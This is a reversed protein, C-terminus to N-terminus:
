MRRERNRSWEVCAPFTCDPSHYFRVKSVGLTTILYPRASHRKEPIYTHVQGPPSEETVEIMERTLRPEVQPTLRPDEPDSFPNCSLLLGVLVLAGAGVVSVYKADRSNM